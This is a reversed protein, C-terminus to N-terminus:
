FSKPDASKPIHKCELEDAKSKGIFTTSMNPHPRGTQASLKLHYPIKNYINFKNDDNRDSTKRFKDLSTLITKYELICCLKCTLHLHAM